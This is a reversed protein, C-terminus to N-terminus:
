LFAVDIGLDLQESTEWSIDENPLIDAYAGTSQTIKDTGFVYSKILLLLLFINSTPLILIVMRDGAQM